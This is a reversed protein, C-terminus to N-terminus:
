HGTLLYKGIAVALAIAVVVLAYVSARGLSGGHHRGAGFAFLGILGALIGRSLAPGANAHLLLPLSALGAVGLAAVAQGVMTMRDHSPLRRGAFLRATLQFALWHALTLGLTTGWVVTLVARGPDGHPQASLVALLSITIYLGMTLSERIVAQDAVTPGHREDADEVHMHAGERITALGGVATGLMTPAVSRRPPTM